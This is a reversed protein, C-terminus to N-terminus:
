KLFVEIWHPLVAEVYNTLDTQQAKIINGWNEYVHCLEHYIEDSTTVNVVTGNGKTMWPIEFFTGIIPTGQSVHDAGVINFTESISAQMGIDIDACVKLFGERDYWEHNILKHGKDYIHEFLSMLNHVVPQGKMEIRSSNIHFNLKLGYKEAFKIAAFAQNLHNKLPRVAGFCSINIVKDEKINLQKSKMETPYYNPLFSVKSDDVVNRSNSLSEFMGIEDLMRPSNVAVSVNRYKLYEGVWDLAIGENAIFPLESHLRVIWKVTPHLDQLVAFKTPVVWLAEIIVHTPKYKTVERDIDNNDTVVVLNSTIGLDTLM